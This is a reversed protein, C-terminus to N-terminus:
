QELFSKYFQINRNVIVESAFLQAVRERAKVGMALAKQSDSLLIQIRKAMAIHDSPYVTYGTEGEVMMEKAWGINSTVLPKQMAMAELWTMPFAEAYSPLCIVHAKNIYDQVQAYPVEQIFLVKDLLAPNIISRILAKTSNIEQYDIVDKGLFMVQIHPNIKFLENIAHAFDLVGKKRILTGFYLVRNTVINDHDSPQFKAIDISNYITTIKRKTGFVNNTVVGTFTSASLLAKAKNFNQKELWKNKFKQKRKEIHCFYTDSGNLRVVYPTKFNIFTGIGTWDMGEIVDIRESKVLTNIKNELHKKYFYWSAVPYKVKKFSHISVGNEQFNADNKQYPVFVTVLIGNKVLSTALNYISTGLGGSKVLKSSPYESTLFAIHM